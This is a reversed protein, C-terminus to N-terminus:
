KTNLEQKLLKIELNLKLKQLSDNQRVENEYRLTAEQQVKIIFHLMSYLAVCGFFTLTITGIIKFLHKM